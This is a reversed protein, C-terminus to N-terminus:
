GELGLERALAEIRAIATPDSALSRKADILASRAKDSEQLVAYARVLRLWGDIDQGNQALRTALGEVMGHIASARESEPMAALKSALAPNTPGSSAPNNQALPNALGSRAALRERLGPAWAANAPAEALLKDWIHRAGAEDGNQAAALGIFFRPTPLNPDNAAATEFAHQADATVAGNAAAVLAEGYFSLRTPTEGLLRLANAYARVADDARGTRLYVPALVEYGRGDDPNQALHAEIKAVAAMLDTPDPSAEHRASLPLDPLDPHGVLAYIGIAIAPVLILAGLSALRVRRPTAASLEQVPTDAIALLRRGAEAKALEAERPAMLEQAADRGIEAIQAKYFAVDVEGRSLGRPTKTLPWLVSLVAAGTLIAFILWIMM